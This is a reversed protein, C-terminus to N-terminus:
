EVHGESERIIDEIYALSYNVKEMTTKRDDQPDWVVEPDYRFQVAFETFDDFAEILFPIPEGSNRLADLLIGLDHIKPYPIDRCSLWAKLGKEISQQVFFGFVADPVEDEDLLLRLISADRRAVALMKRAHILDPMYSEDRM